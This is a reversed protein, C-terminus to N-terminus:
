RAPEEFPIAYLVLEFDNFAHSRMFYRYAGPALQEVLLPLEWLHEPKHYLSIALGPAHKRILERAGLLAEAEAGEIDMKILNPHFTPLAEDLSVCQIMTNGSAVISSAMGGGGEFGLQCSSSYVGCPWLAAEGVGASRVSSSLKVFNAPDPEFAAVAEIAFHAGMLVAITDGDFAGCDVLRLPQKWSPIDSPCYQHQTDPSPLASYEGTTRFRLIKMFLERSAEDHLLRYCAEIQSSFSKYFTRSALWYRHGLEAAYRDYLDIMTIFRRYGLNQLRDLLAPIDVEFNHIGLIVVAERRQELLLGAADPAFVAAGSPTAGSPRHDLFGAIEVGDRALVAHVERAVSGTGYVFVSGGRLDLLDKVHRSADKLITQLQTLM